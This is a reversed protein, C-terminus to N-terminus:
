NPILDVELTIAEEHTPLSGGERISHALFRRQLQVLYPCYSSRKLERWVNAFQRHEVKGNITLQARTVQNAQAELVDVQGAHQVTQLPAYSIGLADALLRGDTMSKKPDLDAPDFAPPDLATLFALDDYPDNDSYGSGDRETNNTPTGQPVLSFGKPSFQHNDILEEVLAAGGEASAGTDM